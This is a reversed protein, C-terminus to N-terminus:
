ACAAMAPSSLTMGIEGPPPHTFQAQLAMMGGIRDFALGAASWQRMPLPQALVTLSTVLVTDFWAAFNRYFSIAKPFYSAL